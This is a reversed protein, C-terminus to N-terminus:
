WNNKNEPARKKENELDIDTTISDKIGVLVVSWKKEMM